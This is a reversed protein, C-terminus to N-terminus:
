HLMRILQICVGNILYKNLYSCDMYLSKKFDFMRSLQTIVYRQIGWTKTGPDNVSDQDLFYNHMQLTTDVCDVEFSRPSEHLSEM